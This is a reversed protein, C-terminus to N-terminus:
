ASRISYFVIFWNHTAFMTMWCTTLFSINEIKRKFRFIKIYIYM